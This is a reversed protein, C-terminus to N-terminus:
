LQARVAVPLLRLDRRNPMSLWAELSAMVTNLLGNKRWYLTKELIKINEHHLFAM